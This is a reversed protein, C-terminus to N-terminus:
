IFMPSLSCSSGCAETIESSAIGNSPKRQERGIGLFSTGRQVDLAKASPSTGEFCEAMRLNLDQRGLWCTM